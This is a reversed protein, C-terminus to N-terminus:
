KQNLRIQNLHRTWIEREKLGDECEVHINANLQRRKGMYMVKYLSWDHSVRSKLGSLGSHPVISIYMDMLLIILFM